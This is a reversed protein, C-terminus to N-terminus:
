KDRLLNVNYGIALLYDYLDIVANDPDGHYFDLWNIGKVPELMEIKYSSYTNVSMDVEMSGSIYRKRGNKTTAMILDIAYDKDALQMDDHAKVETYLYSAVGNPVRKYSCPFRSFRKRWTDIEKKTKAIAVYNFKDIYADALVTRYKRKRYERYEDCYKCGPQNCHIPFRIASGDTSYRLFNSSCCKDKKQESTLSRWWSYNNLTQFYAVDKRQM